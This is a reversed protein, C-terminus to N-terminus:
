KKLISFNTFSKKEGEIQEIMEGVEEWRGLSDVLNNKLADDATFFPFNDVVDDFKEHSINRSRCVDQKVIDYLDDLIADWQERDGESMESRAYTEAASKYKFYRLETFGVGLKELTGKFYTRGLIFGEITLM